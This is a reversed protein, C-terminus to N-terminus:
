RLGKARLERQGDQWGDKAGIAFGNTFQSKKEAQIVELPSVGVNDQTQQPTSFKIRKGSTSYFVPGYGDDVLTGNNNFDPYPLPTQFNIARFFNTEYGIKYGEAFMGSFAGDGYVNEVAKNSFMGDDQTGLQDYIRNQALPTSSLDSDQIIIDSLDPIKFPDFKYVSQTPDLRKIMFKQAGKGGGAFLENRTVKMVEYRYEENGEVDFVVIFDRQRMIPVSLTWCSINIEQFLGQEKLSLDEDYPEFRVFIRGLADQQNIYPIYGPVFSTGYCLTCQVKSRGRNTSYCLCRRGTYQRRLLIVPKGTARLLQDERDKVVESFSKGQLVGRSYPSSCRGDASQGSIFEAVSVKHYGRKDSSPSCGQEEELSTQPLQEDESVFKVHYGDNYGEPYMQDFTKNGSQDTECHDVGYILQEPPTDERVCENTPSGLNKNIYKSM